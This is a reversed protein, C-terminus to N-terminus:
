ARGKALQWTQSHGRLAFLSDGFEVLDPLVHKVLKMTDDGFDIRPRELWYERVGDRLQMHMDGRTVKVSIGPLRKGDGDLGGIQELVEDAMRNRIEEETVSARFSISNPKIIKVM